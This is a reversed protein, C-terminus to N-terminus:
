EPHLRLLADIYGTEILGGLSRNQSEEQDDAQRAAFPHPMIDAVKSYRNSWGRFLHDWLSLFM